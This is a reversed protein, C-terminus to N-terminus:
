DGVQSNGQRFPRRVVEHISFVNAFRPEAETWLFQEGGTSVQLQDKTLRGLQGCYSCLSDHPPMFTPLSDPHLECRDTRIVALRELSEYFRLRATLLSLRNSRRM